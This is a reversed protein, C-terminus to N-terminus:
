GAESHLENVLHDATNWATMLNNDTEIKSDELRQLQQLTQGYWLTILIIALPYLKKNRIIRDM